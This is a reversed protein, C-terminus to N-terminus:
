WIRPDGLVARNAPDDYDDLPYGGMAGDRIALIIRSIDVSTHPPAADIPIEPDEPLSPTKFNTM